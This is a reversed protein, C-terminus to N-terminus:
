KAQLIPESMNKCRIHCVGGAPNKVLTQLATPGCFVVPMVRVLGQMVADSLMHCLRVTVCVGLFRGPRLCHDLRSLTNNMKM